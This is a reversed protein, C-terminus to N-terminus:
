YEERLIYSTLSLDKEECNNRKLYDQVVQIKDPAFVFLFAELCTNRHTHTHTYYVLQAEM